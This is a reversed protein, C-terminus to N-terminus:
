SPLVGGANNIMEAYTVNLASIENYTVERGAIQNYTLPNQLHFQALKDFMQQITVSLGTFYDIVHIDIFSDEIYKYLLKNNDLIAQDTYTRMGNVAAELESSLGDVRENIANIQQTATNIFQQQQDSLKDMAAYINNELASFENRFSQLQEDTYANAQEVAEDILGTIRDNVRNLQQVIWCIIEYDSMGQVWTTLNVCSPWPPVIPSNNTSNDAM